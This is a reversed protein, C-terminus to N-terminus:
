EVTSSEGAVVPSLQSILVALAALTAAWLPWWLTPNRVDVGVPFPWAVVVMAAVLVYGLPRMWRVAGRQHAWYALLSFVGTAGAMAFTEPSSLAWLVSCAGLAGAAHLIFGGDEGVGDREQRSLTRVAQRLAKMSEGDMIPHCFSAIVVMAFLATMFFAFGVGTLPLLAPEGPTSQAFFRFFFGLGVMTAFITGLVSTVVTRLSWQRRYVIKAWPKAGGLIGGPEAVYEVVAEAMEGTLRFAPQASDPRLIDAGALTGARGIEQGISSAGAAERIVVTDDWRGLRTITDAEFRMADSDDSAEFVIIRAKAICREVTAQWEEDREELFVPISGLPNILSLGTLSILRADWDRIRSHGPTLLAIRYGPPRSRMAALVGARDGTTSFRRLFLVFPQDLFRAPRLHRDAFGLYGGALIALIALPLVDMTFMMDPTVTEPAVAGSGAMEAIYDLTFTQYLYLGVGASVFLLGVMRVGRAARPPLVRLALRCVAVGCIAFLLYLTVALVSVRLIASEEGEVIMSPGVLISVTIIEIVQQLFIAAFLTSLAGLSYARWDEWTMPPPRSEVPGRAGILRGAVGRRFLIWGLVLVAIGLYIAVEEVALECYLSRVCVFVAIEFYAWYAFAVLGVLYLLTVIGRRIASPRGRAVPMPGPDITQTM